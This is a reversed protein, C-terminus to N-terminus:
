VPGDAPLVDPECVPCPALGRARVAAGDVPVAQPKGAVLPCDPRHCLTGGPVAVLSGGPAAPEGGTEPLQWDAAAPEVPPAAATPTATGQTGTPTGLAATGAGPTRLAAWVVGAVILAAGPATASALYPLQRATLREGSVAYWGLVCMAGGLLALLWGFPAGALLRTLVPRGSSDM